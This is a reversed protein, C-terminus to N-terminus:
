ACKATTSPCNAEFHRQLLEDAQKLDRPHVRTQWTRISTPSLEALTYGMIQAWVENYVTEGTQINWEWTGVHAGEVINKLRRHSDALAQEAQQRETIDFIVGDISAWRGSGDPVPFGLDRVWHITGDAHRVRYEIEYPLGTSVAHVIAARLAPQDEPVALPVDALTGPTILAGSRRGTIKEIADSIHEFRWPSEAARRYVAGPIDAALTRFQGESDGDTIPEARESV